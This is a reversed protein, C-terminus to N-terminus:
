RAGDVAEDWLQRIRDAVFLRTFTNEASWIVLTARTRHSDHTCTILAHVPKGQIGDLAVLWDGRSLGGAGFFNAFSEMSRVANAICAQETETTGLDRATWVAAEVRVALLAFVVM